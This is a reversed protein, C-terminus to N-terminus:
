PQHHHHDKAIYKEGAVHREAQMDGLLAPFFRLFPQALDAFQDRQIQCQPQQSYKHNFNAHRLTSPLRNASKFLRFIVVMELAYYKLELMLAVIIRRLVHSARRYVGKKNKSILSGRKEAYRPTDNCRLSYSKAAPM